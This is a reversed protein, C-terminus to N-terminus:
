HMFTAERFNNETLGLIDEFANGIARDGHRHTSIWGRKAIKYFAKIVEEKKSM